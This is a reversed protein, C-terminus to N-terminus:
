EDKKEKEHKEVTSRWRSVQKHITMLPRYNLTM